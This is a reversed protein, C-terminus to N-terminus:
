PISIYEVAEPDCKRSKINNQTDAIMIDIDTLRNENKVKENHNDSYYGKIAAVHPDSSNGHDYRIIYNESQRSNRKVLEEGLERTKVGQKAM